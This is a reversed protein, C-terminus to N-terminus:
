RVRVTRSRASVPRLRASGNFRASVRLVRRGAFRRPERFTVRSSFRCRRGVRARRASITRRGAGYRVTVTGSCAGAPAVLRGRARFRRPGRRDARPTVRFSVRAAARRLPIGGGGGSPESTGFLGVLGRFTAFAPKASYDDRLLGVAAFLDTGDSNNDRLNFWRYDSVGLEGSWRHLARVTSDLSEVQEAETRGLNTAYGNESVWVDVGAGLSARPM